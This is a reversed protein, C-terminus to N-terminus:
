ASAKYLERLNIDQVIKTIDHALVYRTVPSGVTSTFVLDGFEPKARWRDGLNDRVEAQKKKWSKLLDETEGFFPITRFSNFTKPTTLEEIKTGDIYTTSMSRKIYIEKDVFNIDQWQLGSFEGIRIGTLLLIAYAEYYFSSKAENLFIDQEEHTMVRRKHQTYTSKVLLGVCPNVPIIRNIVAIDLCERLVGIAERITRDAYGKEVLENTAVQLNIQTIDKVRKEGLIAIFTNKIKRNYTKISSISKLRPVKFKEFWEEYWDKLTVNPRVGKEDRLVEAKKLEFAKKLKSLSMDYLDIKVGNITARAEYRGDKRQSFGKGLNKGNLAKGM